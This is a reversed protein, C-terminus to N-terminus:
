RQGDQSRRHQNPDAPRTPDCLRERIWCDLVSARFKWRSRAGRGFQVAPIQQSSALRTVTKVSCNLLKAAEFTGILPECREHPLM